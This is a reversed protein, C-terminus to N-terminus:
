RVSDASDRDDRDPPSAHGPDVFSYPTWLSGEASGPGQTSLPLFPTFSLHNRLCIIVWYSFIEGTNTCTNKVLLLHVSIIAHSLLFSDWVM